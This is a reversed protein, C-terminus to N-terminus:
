MADIVFSADTVAPRRRSVGVLVVSLAASGGFM